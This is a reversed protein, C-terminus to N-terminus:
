FPIDDEAGAPADEPPPEVQDAPESTRKAVGGLFVVRDALVETSWRQIGQRDTWSRTRLRGRVLVQRGVDLHQACAAASRGWTVIRHWETREQKQGKALSTENTALSLLVYVAPTATYRLEPKRGLHGLAPPDALRAPPRRRAQCRRV